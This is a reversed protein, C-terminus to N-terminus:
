GISTAICFLLDAIDVFGIQMRLKNIFAVFPEDYIPDKMM